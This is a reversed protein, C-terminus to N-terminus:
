PEGSLFAVLGPTGVTGRDLPAGPTREM